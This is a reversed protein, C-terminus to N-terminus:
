ATLLDPQTLAAGQLAQLAKELETKAATIDGTKCHEQASSKLTKHLNWSDASKPSQRYVKDAELVFWRWLDLTAETLLKSAVSRLKQPHKEPYFNCIEETTTADHNCVHNRQLVRASLAKLGIQQVTTANM